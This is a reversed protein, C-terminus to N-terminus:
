KPGSAAGDWLWTASYCSRTNERAWERTVARVTKLVKEPGKLSSEPGTSSAELCHQNDTRPGITKTESLFHPEITSQNCCSQSWMVECSRESSRRWFAQRRVHITAQVSGDEEGVKEQRAWNRSCIVNKEWDEQRGTIRSSLIGLM